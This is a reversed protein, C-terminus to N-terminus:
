GDQRVVDGPITRAIAGARAPAVADTRGIRVLTVRSLAPALFDGTPAARDPM